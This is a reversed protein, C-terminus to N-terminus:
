ANLTIRAKDARSKPSNVRTSRIVGVLDKARNWAAQSQGAQGQWLAILEAASQLWSADGADLMDSSVETGRVRLRPRVLEATLM